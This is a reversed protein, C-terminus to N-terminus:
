KRFSGSYASDRDMLEPVRVSGQEAVGPHVDFLDGSAQAVAVHIDCPFCVGMQVRCFFFAGDLNQVAYFLFPGARHFMMGDLPPKRKRIPFRRSTLARGMGYSFPERSSFSLKKGWSLVGCGRRIIVGGFYGNEKQVGHLLRDTSVPSVVRSYEMVQFTFSGSNQRM